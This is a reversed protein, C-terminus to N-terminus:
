EADGAPRRSVEAEKLIVSRGKVPLWQERSKDLFEAYIRLICDGKPLQDFIMDFENWGLDPQIKQEAIIKGDCILEAKFSFIRSNSPEAPIFKLKLSCEREPIRFAMAGLDHSLRAGSVDPDFGGLFLSDFGDGMNGFSHVGPELIAWDTSLSELPWEVTAEKQQASPSFSAVYYQDMVLLSPRVPLLMQWAHLNKRKLADEHVVYLWAPDPRGRWFDHFRQWMPQVKSSKPYRAYYAADIKLRHKYALLALDYEMGLFRKVPFPIVSVGSHSAIMEDWRTDHLRNSMGTPEQRPHLEQRAYLRVDYFQLGFCFVLITAALWRPLLCTGLLALFLLGSAVPWIFRGIWRFVDLQKQVFEPLKLDVLIHPGFTFTFATSLILFLLLALGFSGWVVGPWRHDLPLFAEAASKRRFFWAPIACLLLLLVGAGLYWFGEHQYGTAKQHAPLLFGQVATPLIGGLLNSGGGYDKSSGWDLMMPRFYDLVAMGAFLVGIVGGTFLIAFLAQRTSKELLLLAVERAVWIGFLALLMAALYAHVAAALLLLVAWVVWTARRNQSFLLGFGLPILWQAMLSFHWGFRHLMIPQIAFFAAGILLVEVRNTFKGLLWVAAMGQLAFCGLAWWGFFQFDAPLFPSFLKLPISIVPIADAFVVNSAMEAGYLNLRGLPFSWPELRFFSWAVYHAGSDYDLLWDINQVRLSSPGLLLLYLAAGILGGALILLRPTKSTSFTM